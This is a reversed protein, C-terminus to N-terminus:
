PTVMCKLKSLMVGCSPYCQFWWFAGKKVSWYASNHWNQNLLFACLEGIWPQHGVIVVTEKEKLPLLLQLVECANASPNLQSFQKVIPSKLYAGTQQSRVAESVWVQYEEPLRKQLERAMKEAQKRGKLTLCRNLDNVGEEAEAHRWLIIQMDRMGILFDSGMSEPLRFCM